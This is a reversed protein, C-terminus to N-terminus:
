IPHSPRDETSSRYAKWYVCEILHLLSRSIFFFLVTFCLSFFPVLFVVFLVCSDIVM